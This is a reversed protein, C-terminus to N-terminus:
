GNYVRDIISIVPTIGIGGILFGIDRYGEQFVSKGMPGQILVLDDLQLGKLKQSFQSDSIRKTVEIYNKTPSSSFSLYKNLEPNVINEKDLILRLFQGPAFDIKEEPIFRFSEVTPTRKIRQYLKIKRTDM